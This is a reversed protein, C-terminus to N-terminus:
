DTETHRRRNKMIKKIGKYAKMRLTYYTDANRFIYSRWILRYANRNRRNAKISMKLYERAKVLDHLIYYHEGIVELRHSYSAPYRSLEDKYKEFFYLEAELKKGYRLSMRDGYRADYIVLPKDVYDVKYRKCIRLWLDYDEKAKLRKDEDFVGVADFCEKKILAFSPSGICNRYILTDYIDGRCEAKRITREEGHDVIVSCYILGTDEGCEDFRRVQLELKENLWKDDDDLFAIYDGQVIKMGANRAYPLGMNKEYTVLRINANEQTNKDEILKNVTNSIAPDDNDDVVILEFNKYTQGLVSDIARNLMDVDRKYTTIIVSVLKDM